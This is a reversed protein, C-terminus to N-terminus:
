SPFGDMVTHEAELAHCGGIGDSHTLSFEHRKGIKGLLPNPPQDRDACEERIGQVLLRM